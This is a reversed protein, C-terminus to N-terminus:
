TTSEPLRFFVFDPRFVIIHSAFHPNGLRFGRATLRPQIEDSTLGAQNPSGARSEPNIVAWVSNVNALAAGLNRGFGMVDVVTFAAASRLLRGVETSNRQTLGRMFLKVADTFLAELLLVAQIKFRVNLPDVFFKPYGMFGLDLTLGYLALSDHLPALHPAITAGLPLM